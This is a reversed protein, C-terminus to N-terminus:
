LTILSFSRHKKNPFIHLSHPPSTYRNMQFIVKEGNTAYYEILYFTTVFIDWKVQYQNDFIELINEFKFTSFESDFLQAHNKHLDFNM